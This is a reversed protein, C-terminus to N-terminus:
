CCTWVTQLLTHRKKIPLDKSIFKKLLHYNHAKLEPLFQSFEIEEYFSHLLEDIIKEIFVKESTTNYILSIHGELFPLKMLEVPAEAEELAQYEAVALLNSELYDTYKICSETLYDFQQSPFWYVEEFCLM